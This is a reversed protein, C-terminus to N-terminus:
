RPNGLYGLNAVGARQGPGIASVTLRLSALSSTNPVPTATDLQMEAQVAGSKDLFWSAPIEILQGGVVSQRGDITVLKGGLIERYVERYIATPSCNRTCDATSVTTLRKWHWVM